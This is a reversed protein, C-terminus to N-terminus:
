YLYESPPPDKTESPAPQPPAMDVGTGYVIGGILAIALGVGIVPLGVEPNPELGDDECSDTNADDDEDFPSCGAAVAAGGLVTLGGVAAIGTGVDRRMRPACGSLCGGIACALLVHNVARRM